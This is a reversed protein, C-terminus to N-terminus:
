RAQEAYVMKKDADVLRIAIRGAGNQFIAAYYNDDPAYSRELLGTEELAMEQGFFTEHLAIAKYRHETQYSESFGGILECGFSFFVTRVGLGIFYRFLDHISDGGKYICVFARVALDGVVTQQQMGLYTNVTIM